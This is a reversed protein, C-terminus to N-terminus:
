DQANRARKRANWVSRSEGKSRFKVANGILNVVVQRLRTPDGQLRDPIDPPVHCSLELGKQQAQISLVEVANELSDRM